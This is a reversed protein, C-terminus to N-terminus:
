VPIEKQALTMQPWALAIQAQFGAIPAVGYRHLQELLFILGGEGTGRRLLWSDGTHAPHEHYERVGPLCLFPIQDPGHSQMMQQEVVIQSPDIGDAQAKAAIEPTVPGKRKLTTPLERTKYPVRTFPDVLRLSPAWLDFNTFDFLAGFIAAPPKLQPAAMIIFVTPFAAEILWWGKAHYERAFRRFNAIEREFKVRCVAPDVLIGGEAAM